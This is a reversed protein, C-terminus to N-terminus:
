IVPATTPNIANIGTDIVKDGLSFKLQVYNMINQKAGDYGLEEIPKYKLKDHFFFKYARAVDFHINLVKEYRKTKFEIFYNLTLTLTSELKALNLSTLGLNINQSEEIGDSNRLKLIQIKAMEEDKFDGNYGLKYFHLYLGLSDQTM